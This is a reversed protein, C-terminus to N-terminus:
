GVVTGVTLHLALQKLLRVEPAGAIDVTWMKWPVVISDQVPPEFAALGTSWAVGYALAGVGLPFGFAYLLARRGPAGGVRFSLDGWGERTVLRAIFSAVAPTWMLLIIQGQRGLFAVRQIFMWQFLASLPVLVAFFIWLGRRARQTDDM